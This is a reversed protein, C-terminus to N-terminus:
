FRANLSGKLAPRIPQHNGCQIGDWRQSVRLSLLVRSKLTYESHVNYRATPGVQMITPRPTQTLNSRRTDIMCRSSVQVLVRREMRTSISLSTNMHVAKPAEAPRQWRM